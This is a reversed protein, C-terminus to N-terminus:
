LHDKAFYIWFGLYILSAGLAAGGAVLALDKM